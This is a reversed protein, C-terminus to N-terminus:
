AEDAPEIAKPASKAAPLAKQEPPRLLRAVVPRVMFRPSLRVLLTGFWNRFGHVVLPRGRHMARYAQRAVVDARAAGMRFIRSGTTGAVEDFETATAGPCSVTATVGTGRLEYSLAESFSNVFAKTAGYTAWFPDPQFGATSGLNLIRGSGRGIMPPLLAATLEALALVNLRIMSLEREPELEAFAGSSGYGANNVLFDVSLDLGSLEELLRGAGGEAGLDCAIVHARIEHAGSLDAALAELRDRRRATLVLDHGDAAFLRALEEGLGASAGTILATGM